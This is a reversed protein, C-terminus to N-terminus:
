LGEGIGRLREEWAARLEEMAGWCERGLGEFEERAESTLDRAGRMRGKRGEGREGAVGGYGWGEVETRAVRGSGWFDTVSGWKGPGDKEELADLTSQPALALWVPACAGTYASITHWPSGLWRAIYFAALMGYYLFLNLPVIATACIGPHALYMRPRQKTTPTSPAPTSTLFRHTWPATSPLSATLALIDTLRKSSEYATTSALGQIDAPSFTHAYAELSSIWIIRGPTPHPTSLLRTLNHTLLYHGFVNSCFVEGLPSDDRRPDGTPPTPPIGNSLSQTTELTCQPKTILGVGSIKYSPWTVSHKWDTLVLWVAYLLKVGTFGGYGANLILVDLKSLSRLLKRSLQQISVLSTLDLHEARFEIRANSPYTSKAVKKRSHNRLQSITDDSKKRTRTTIILTLSHSLPRTDLFEDM